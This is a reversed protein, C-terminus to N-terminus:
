EFPPLDAGGEIEVPTDQLADDLDKLFAEDEKQLNEADETDPVWDRPARNKEAIRFYILKLFM